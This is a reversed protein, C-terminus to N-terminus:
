TKQCARLDGQISLCEQQWQGKIGEQKERAADDRIRKAETGMIRWIRGLHAKEDVVARWQWSNLRPEGQRVQRLVASVRNVTRAEGGEEVVVSASIASPLFALEETEETSTSLM